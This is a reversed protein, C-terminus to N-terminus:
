KKGGNRKKQSPHPAKSILIEKSPGILQAAILLILPLLIVQFFELPLIEGLLGQVIQALVYRDILVSVLVCGLVFFGQKFFDGPNDKKQKGSMQELTSWLGMLFFFLPILAWIIYLATQM